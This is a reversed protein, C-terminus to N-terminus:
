FTPWVPITLALGVIFILWCLVILVLAAVATELLRSGRGAAAGISTLLLISVVLGLRELALAFAVLSSAIFVVPRLAAGEAIDPERPREANWLGLALISGGLGLLVWLLLRPMYGTGMRSATGIPYTRSVWLGFAAIGIFLLGALVDKGQLALWWRQWRKAKAQDASM